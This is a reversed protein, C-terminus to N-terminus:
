RYIKFNIFLSLRLSILHFLEATFVLRLIKVGAVQCDANLFLSLRRLRKSMTRVVFLSPRGKLIMRCLVVLLGQITLFTSYHKGALPEADNFKLVICSEVVVMERIDVLRSALSLLFYLSEDVLEKALDVFQTVLVILGFIRQSHRLLM